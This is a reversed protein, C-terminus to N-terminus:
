SARGGFRWLFGGSDWGRRGIGIALVATSSASRRALDACRVRFAVLRRPRFQDTGFWHESGPATRAATLRRDRDSRRRSAGAGAVRAARFAIVLIAAARHGAGCGRRHAHPSAPHSGGAGGSGGEPWQQRPDLMAAAIDALLSGAVVLCRRCRRPRSCCRIIARGSRWSVRAAGHGAVRVDDRGRLAGGVLAPLSLGICHRWRCWRTACHTGCCSAASRCGARVRRACRSTRCRTSSVPACTARRPRSAAPPWCWHGAVRPPAAHGLRAGLPALRAHDLSRCAARGSAVAARVRVGLM